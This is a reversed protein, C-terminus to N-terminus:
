RGLLRRISVETHTGIRIPYLIKMNYADKYWQPIDDFRNLQEPSGLHTGPRTSGLCYAIGSDPSPDLTLWEDDIHAEVWIHADFLILGVGKLFKMMFFANINVRRGEVYRATIGSSRLKHVLVESKMGCHGRKEKLTQNVSDWPPFDYKINEKVWEYSKVAQNYNTM